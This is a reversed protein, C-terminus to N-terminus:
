PIRLVQGVKLQGQPGVIERNAGYIEQWRNTTGYYRQSIKALSDGEGVTHTRVNGAATTLAVSRATPNNALAAKLQYNEQALLANAGQLQQLLTRTSALESGAQSSGRQLATLSENLRAVEAQSNRATEEAAALRASLSNKEASLGDTSKATRSQLEEFDKQLQSYGSLATALKDEATALKEKLAAPDDTATTPTAPTQQQAAALQARTAALASELQNVRGSLDPYAPAANHATALQKELDAVRSRLDPYAPGAQQARALQTKLDAVEDRLDPYSPASPRQRAAALESQLQSVQERLDPYSPAASRASLQKELQAVRDRLDPYAPPADRLAAVQAELAAARERLDPYAPAVPQRAAALQTELEAVRSRLDPYAPAAKNAAALQDQLARASAHLKDLEDQAISAQQQSRGLQLRVTQFETELATKSNALATFRTDLTDARRNAEALQNELASVRERLDPYAPAAPKASAAAALQGELQTVRERLDPYAPPANRLAAVQAELEGVRERLDPYAATAPQQKVAALQATLGDVQKTLDLAASQAQTLMRELRARDDAGRALTASLQANANRANELDALAGKLERTKQALEPNETSAPASKLAALSQTARDLESHLQESQRVLEGVRTESQRAQEQYARNVDRADSVEKQMQAALKQLRERDTRLAAIEGALDTLKASLSDRERRLQETDDAPTAAAKAKELEAKLQDAEKWAAALETSLQKKDARAQALEGDAAPTNAAPASAPAAPTEAVAAPHGNATRREALRTKATQLETPTLQTSLADLARGRAGNDLALSLWLYAEVRDVPIGRGEAYALGLNYQAIANGKEAKARLAALDNDAAHLGAAALTAGLLAHRLVRSLKM